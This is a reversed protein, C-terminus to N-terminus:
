ERVVDDTGGMILFPDIRCGHTDSDPLVGPLTLFRHFLISDPKRCSVMVDVEPETTDGYHLIGM